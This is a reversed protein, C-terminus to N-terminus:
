KHTFINMYTVILICLVIMIYSFLMVHCYSCAALCSLDSAFCSISIVHMLLMCYSIVFWICSRIILHCLVAITVQLMVHCIMHLDHCYLSKVHYYNCAIHCSLNSAICPMVHCYGFLAHRPLDYALCLSSLVHCYDCIHCYSILCSLSIVHCLLLWICYLKVFWRCSMVYYYNYTAHCPLNFALYSSSTLHMGSWTSTM